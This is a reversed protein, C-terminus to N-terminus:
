NKVYRKLAKEIVPQPVDEVVTVNGISVPLVFRNKGAKFKKDHKLCRMIDRNGVGAIQTPLKASNILQAVRAQQDQSFLGLECAIDGALLMGLAVAEGHTYGSYGSAAEIAHGMTHGFNLIIRIDKKDFVDAQVVQAKIRVCSAVVRSLPGTKKLLSSVNQEITEFLSKDAIVGYKIVEAMGNRMQAEPLTSLLGTDTIVADPQYFTGVMNKAHPLDIAVKGGISSDVQALLTTPVHLLSVGRRYTAAVFGALDGVVGGGIAVILPEFGSARQSVRQVVDKFVEFSKAREGSPVFVFIIERRTKELYPKIVSSLHRWVTRDTVVVLPGTFPIRKVTNSLGRIANRRIDAQYSRKNIKIDIKPM